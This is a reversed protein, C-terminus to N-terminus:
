GNAKEENKEYKAEDHYDLFTYTYDFQSEKQNLNHVAHCATLFCDMNRGAEEFSTFNYEIEVFEQLPKSIFDPNRGFLLRLFKVFREQQTYPIEFVIVCKLKYKASDKAM